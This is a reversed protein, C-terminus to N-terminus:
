TGPICHTGAIGSQVHGNVFGCSVFFPKETCTITLTSAAADFAWTATFGSHSVTGTDNIPPLPFNHSNAFDAAKQKLCNFANADVNNFAVPDCAM